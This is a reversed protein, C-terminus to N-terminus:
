KYNMIADWNPEAVPEDKYAGTDQGLKVIRDIVEQAADTHNNLFCPLCKSHHLPQDATKRLWAIDVQSDCASCCPFQLNLEALRKNVEIRDVWSLAYHMQFFDRDM